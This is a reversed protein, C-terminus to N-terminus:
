CGEEDDEEIFDVMVTVIQGTHMEGKDDYYCSPNEVFVEIHIDEDLMKEKQVIESVCAGIRKAITHQLIQRDESEM